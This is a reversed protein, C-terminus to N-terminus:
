VNRKRLVGDGKAATTTKREEQTVGFSVAVSRERLARSVAPLAGRNVFAGVRWLMWVEGLLPQRALCFRSTARTSPFLAGFVLVRVAFGPSVPAIVVNPDLM